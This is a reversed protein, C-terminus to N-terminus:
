LKERKLSRHLQTDPIHSLLTNSKAAQYKKPKSPLSSLKVGRTEYQREEIM